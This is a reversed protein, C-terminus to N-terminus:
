LTVQERPEVFPGAGCYYISLGSLDDIKALATMRVHDITSFFAVELM